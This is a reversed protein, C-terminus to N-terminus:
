PQLVRYFRYPFNTAKPDILNFLNTVATNTSIPTWTSFNTTAQLVYNSGTVGAFGLQLQRNALFGVSTFYLPQVFFQASAAVSHNFNTEFANASVTTNTFLNFAGSYRFSNTTPLSGDLSYYITANTDPSQLAVKVSALYSGGNPTIVPPALAPIGPLSNIWDTFVQVANPDILNRFDPMQIDPDLTNVRALLVSRWPDKAKIV